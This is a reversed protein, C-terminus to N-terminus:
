SGAHMQAKKRTFEHLAITTERKIFEALVRVDEATHSLFEIGIRGGKVHRVRSMLSFDGMDPIKFIITLMDGETFFQQVKLTAGTMSLDTVLCTSRTNGFIYRAEFSVRVRGSKRNNKPKVAFRKLEERGPRAKVPVIEAIPMHRRLSSLKQHATVSINTKLHM